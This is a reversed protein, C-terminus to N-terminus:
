FLETTSVNLIRLIRIRIVKSHMCYRYLLINYRLIYFYPRLVYELWIENEQSEQNPYYRNFVIVIIIVHSCWPSQSIRCDSQNILPRLRIRWCLFGLFTIPHCNQWTYYLHKKQNLNQIYTAANTNKRQIWSFQILAM